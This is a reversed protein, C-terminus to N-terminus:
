IGLRETLKRIAREYEAPSLGMAKIKQKEIEYIVWKDM